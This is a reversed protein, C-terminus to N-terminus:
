EIEFAADLAALDQATDASFSATTQIGGLGRFALLLDEISAFTTARSDILQLTDLGANSGVGYALRNVGLAELAEVEDIINSNSDGDSFFILNGNGFATGQDNFVDLVADLASDFNTSGGDRLGLLAEEIDRISNGNTDANATTTSQVGPLTPDLDLPNGSGNYVIVSVNATDGVGLEDLEQVLALVGAIEADLITNEIGDGNLDGVNETGTFQSGTSGSVDIAFVIDDGDLLSTREEVAFNSVFVSNGLANGVLDTVASEVIELRHDGIEFSGTEIRVLQDGDQLEVTTPVVSDDATDFQGDPGAAVIQFVGNAISSEALPESFQIRVVGTGELRIGGDIPLLSEIVPSITDPVIDIVIENSLTMNGGTDTARVQLVLSDAGDELVPNTTTFDFPFSVDNQVTEGNILLEANRVQVDDTITPSIGIRSGEIM